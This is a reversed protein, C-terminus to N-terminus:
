FSLPSLTSIFSFFLYLPCGRDRNRRIITSREARIVTKTNSDTTPYIRILPMGFRFRDSNSHVYVVSFAEIIGAMMLVSDM